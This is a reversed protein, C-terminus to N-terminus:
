RKEKKEWKIYWKKQEKNKMQNKAVKVVVVYTDKSKRKKKKIECMWEYQKKRAM